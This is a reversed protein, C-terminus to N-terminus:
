AICYPTNPNFGCGLDLIYLGLVEKGNDAKGKTFRGIINCFCNELLEEELEKTQKLNNCAHIYENENITEKKLFEEFSNLKGNYFEEQDEEYEEEELDEELSKLCIRILKFVNTYIYLKNEEFTLPKEQAKLIYNVIEKKKAKGVNPLDAEAHYELYKRQLDGFARVVMMNFVPETIIVSM